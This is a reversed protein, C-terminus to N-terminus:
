QDSDTTSVRGESNKKDNYEDELIKRHLLKAPRSAWRPCTLLEIYHDLNPIFGLDERVHQEALLSTPVAPARCIDITHGFHEICDRIGQTHHSLMRHMISNTSDRSRDMWRHLEAYDDPEGGFANASSVCHYHYHSM